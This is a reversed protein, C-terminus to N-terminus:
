NVPAQYTLTEEQIAGGPYTTYTGRLKGNSEIRYVVIGPVARTDDPLWSSSLWEGHRIGVGQHTGAGISWLLQYAEGSKRIITTGSYNKGECKYVGAIEREPGASWAIVPILVLVAFLAYRCKSKM